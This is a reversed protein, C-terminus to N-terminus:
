FTLSYTTTKVLYDNVLGRIADADDALINAGDLAILLEQKKANKVVVQILDRVYYLYQSRTEMELGQVANAFVESRRLEPNKIADEYFTLQQLLLEEQRRTSSDTRNGYSLRNRIKNALFVAAIDKQPLAYWGDPVQYKAFYVGFSLAHECAENLWELTQDRKAESLARFARRAREVDSQTVEIDQKYCNMNVKYKRSRIGKQHNRTKKIIKAVLLVQSFELSRRSRKSRITIRKAFARFLGAPTPGASSNIYDLLYLTRNIYLQVQNEDLGAKSLRSQVLDLDPVTM